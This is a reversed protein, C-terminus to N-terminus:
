ADVIHLPLVVKFTSGQGIRSEVGVSGGMAVVLQHVIALGLGVGGVISTKAEDVQRYPEFIYQQAEPSIGIGTDKVSLAWHDNDEKGVRIIIRGQDTYKIANVILNSLVQGIRTEDGMISPPLDPELRLSMALGKRLALPLCDMQVAKALEQPSFPKERIQLQGAELRSQDLLETFAQSLRQANNLVRTLPDKQAETMPGYVDELLMESLGIIAGLPTRLDHSIQAIFRSKFENAEAAKQAMGQVEQIEVTYRDIARHLAGRIREQESLIMEERAHIFGQVVTSHYSDYTDLALAVQEAAVNALLFQRTERGFHLVTEQSLGDQCLKEGRALGPTASQHLYAILSDSEDAAIRGLASPRLEARGTFLLEQLVNRYCRSLDDRLTEVQSALSALPGETESQSIDPSM